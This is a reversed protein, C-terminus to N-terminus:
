ADRKAAKFSITKGLSIDKFMEFVIIADDESECQILICNGFREIHCPPFYCEDETEESM